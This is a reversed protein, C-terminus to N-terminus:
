EHQNEGRHRFSQLISLLYTFTEFRFALSIGIYIAAGAAVQLVLLLICNWNLLSLLWVPIGMALAALFSPAVDKLQDIFRYGILTKGPLSNIRLCLIGELLLGVAMARVSIFITCAIVALDLVKKVIELRLFLDSRGMAKVANLNATHVPYLAYYISFIQIFPVCSLWEEGLLFQVLPRACALLGVMLPWMVYSGVRIARRTMAKVKEANDQQESLAPLLVSDISTNVNDVILNPFLMGENYFALDSSTYRYGIMLQRLREFVTNLLSSVLLKWGFSFLGKLREFSFRAEPRWRVTFWLIVTDVFNNILYQAVYAWVGYGRYAMTIGVVAALLTGTLTAFFFKRFLMNRSVYAQQINRVGSIILILGLVRLVATLEPRAYFRAIAPSFLFLLLYFFLCSALNFYFVSSFDLADADKKQILATGFGSEIFVQLIETIVLVIAVTGFVEPALLRALILNVVVSILKAGVRELFRWILNSFVKNGNM